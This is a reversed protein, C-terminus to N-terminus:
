RHVKELAESRMGSDIVVAASLPFPDSSFFCIDQREGDDYVAFDKKLLGEVLRGNEDKVTVPVNVFNVNSSLTFLQDRSDEGARTRGPQATTIQPTPPPTPTETQPQNSTSDGTRPMPQSPAPPAQQEDPTPSTQAPPYPSPQPFNQPKQKASPADPINQDPPKSPAQQASSGVWGAMVVVLLGAAWCNRGTM